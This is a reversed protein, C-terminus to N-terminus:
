RESGILARGAPSRLGGAGLRSARKVEKEAIPPKAMLASSPLLSATCFGGKAGRFDKKWLHWNAVSKSGMKELNPPLAPAGISLRCSFFPGPALGGGVVEAGLNDRSVKPHASRQSFQVSISIMRLWLAASGGTNIFSELKPLTAEM